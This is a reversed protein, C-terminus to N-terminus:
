RLSKLWLYYEASSVRVVCQRMADLGELSMSVSLVWVAVAYNQSNFTLSSPLIQSEGGNDKYAVVSPFIRRGIKDEIILVQLCAFYPFDFV